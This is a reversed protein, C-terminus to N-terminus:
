LALANHYLWVYIPKSVEMLLFEFLSEVEVEISNPGVRSILQAARGDSMMKDEYELVERLQACTKLPVENVREVFCRNKEQFLYRVLKYTIFPVERRARDKKNLPSSESDDDEYETPPDAVSNVESEDGQIVILDQWQVDLIELAKPSLNGELM